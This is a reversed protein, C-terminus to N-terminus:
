HMYVSFAGTTEVNGAQCAKHLITNGDKDRHHLKANEEVLRKLEELNTASALLLKEGEGQTARKRAARNRHGDMLIGFVQESTAVERPLKGSKSRVRDDWDHLYLWQILDINGCRAAIHLATEGTTEVVEKRLASIIHRRQDEGTLAHPLAVGKAAEMDVLLKCLDLNGTQVALLFPSYGDTNRKPHLVSAGHSM